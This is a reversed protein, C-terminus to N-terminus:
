RQIESKVESIAEQFIEEVTRESIEGRKAAEIRQKLEAILEEHAAEEDEYAALGREIVGDATATGSDLKAVLKSELKPRTINLEM